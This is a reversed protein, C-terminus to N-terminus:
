ARRFLGALTEVANVSEARDITENDDGYGRMDGGALDQVVIGDSRSVVGIDKYFLGYTVEPQPILWGIQGRVPVVSEDKCLARAGYGTCNVVVDERLTALESLVRFERREIRGGRALFDGILTHGYDAINFTMTANRRVKHGPFPSEEDAMEVSHPMIDRVRSRLEMFDLAPSPVPPAPRDPPDGLYYRDSWVVPDGPLGLYRRYRKFSIRTMEEWMEGFGPAAKDTLAIRSDPTFSGTARASRADLLLDRACITVKLGAEQALIATTIGLAGCGVVALTKPNGALAIRLALTASGWSLSWGSGGHGYNHVITKRGVQEAEIRPGQARFPRLCVTLDFLRDVEARIPPLRPGRLIPAPPPPPTACAGLMGVAALSGGTRLLMRRDVAHM